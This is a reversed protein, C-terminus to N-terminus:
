RCCDRSARFVALLRRSCVIATLGTQSGAEWIAALSRVPWRKTFRKLCLQSQDYVASPLLTMNVRDRDNVAFSGSGWETENIDTPDFNAGWLGGDTIFVDVQVSNGEPTQPQVVVRYGWGSHHYSQGRRPGSQRRYM